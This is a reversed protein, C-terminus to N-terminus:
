EIYGLERLRDKVESEDVDYSKGDAEAIIERREDEVVEMWPVERLIPDDSNPRHGVWVGDAYGEDYEEGLSEGHDSTVVLKGSLESLAYKVWETVLLLNEVYSVRWRLANMLDFEPEGDSLGVFRRYEDTQVFQEGFEGVFPMHPQNYHAIIRKDPYRKHAEIVLGTTGKPTVEEMTEEYLEQWLPIVEHFKSDDIVQNVAPNATVYVTDNYPPDNFNEEIFEMTNSGKTVSKEVKGPLGWQEQLKFLDYRCADLIFLTDWDAEMVDSRPNM